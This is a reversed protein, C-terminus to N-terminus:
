RRSSPWPGSRSAARPAPRRPRGASRRGPPSRGSPGPAARGAPAWGVDEPDLDPGGVAPDDVGVLRPQDALPVRQAGVVLLRQLVADRARFQGVQAPGLVAVLPRGPL